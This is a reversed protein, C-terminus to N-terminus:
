KQNSPLFHPVRVFVIESQVASYVWYALGFAILFVILFPLIQGRFLLVLAFGFMVVFLISQLPADRWCALLFDIM